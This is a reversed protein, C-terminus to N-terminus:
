IKILKRKKSIEEKHKGFGIKSPYWEEEAYTSIRELDKLNLQKAIPFLVQEFLDLVTLVDGKASHAAREPLDYYRRLTQLKCNGAPFPDLLRRVLRLACFGRKGVQNIGLRGM